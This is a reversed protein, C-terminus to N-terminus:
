FQYHEHATVHSAITGLRFGLKTESHSERVTASISTGARYCHGIPFGNYKSRWGLLSQPINELNASVSHLLLLNSGRRIIFSM